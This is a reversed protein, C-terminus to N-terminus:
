RRRGMEEIVRSAAEVPFSELVASAARESMATLVDVITQVDQTSLQEAATAPEMAGYWTALSEIREARARDILVLDQALQARIAELEAIRSEIETLVTELAEQQNTLSQERLDLEHERRRLEELFFDIEGGAFDEAVPSDHVTEPSTSTATTMSSAVTSPASEADSIGATQALATGALVVALALAAAIAVMLLRETIQATQKM